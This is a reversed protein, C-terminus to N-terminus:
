VLVLVGDRKQGDEDVAVAALLIGVRLQGIPWQSTGPVYFGALEYRISPTPSLPNNRM